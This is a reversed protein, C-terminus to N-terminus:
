PRNYTLQKFKSNKAHEYFTEKTDANYVYPLFAEMSELQELQILSIQLEVWDHMIKWATRSAQARITEKMAESPKKVTKCYMKWLADYCAEVKAPLKFHLPQPINPVIMVFIMADCQQNNNYSKHIDRAGAEVLMEEIRGMSTAAPISSTYNKITKAM